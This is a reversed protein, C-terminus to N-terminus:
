ISTHRDISKFVDGVAVIQFHNRVANTCVSQVEACNATRGYLVMDHIKNGILGIRKAYVALHNGDVCESLLPMWHM